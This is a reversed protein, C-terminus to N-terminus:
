KNTLLEPNEYINGIIECGSFDSWTGYRYGKVNKIVKTTFCPESNFASPDKALVRNNHENDSVKNGSSWVVQSIVEGIKSSSSYPRSNLYHRIVDGEAIEKGNKDKLGTYQQEDGIPEFGQEISHTPCKCKADGWSTKLEGRYLTIYEWRFHGNQCITPVRFKKELAM